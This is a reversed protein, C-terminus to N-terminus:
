RISSQIGGVRRGTQWKGASQDACQRNPPNPGIRYLTMKLRWCMRTKAASEVFDVVPLFSDYPLHLLVDQRQLVNFINEGSRLVAPVHPQYTADKLDPRELRHLEWLSSLGLPGDYAYIDQPGVQLNDTLISRIEGPTNEDIELRVVRGFHRQRLNEEMTLLLDDAEEEQIEMDTNRTIRFHISM